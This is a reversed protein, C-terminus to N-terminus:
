NQKEENRNRRRKKSEEWLSELTEQSATKITINRESAIKEVEKFRNLFKINGDTAVVEPDVEMHRCLQAMSFYVDGLEDCIAKKNKGPGKKWEEKTEEVESLFKDFVPEITPWDFNIRSSIKGIELSQRSAPFIKEAKKFVHDKSATNEKEKIEQWKKKIQHIEKQKKDENTGFVHPHRRTMKSNLVEMVDTIDFEGKESALQANLFVQLLVDGLEDCIKKPDGEEMAESAEYAEEIMYRRLTKHTQKLDWPCGDKPDRLTKITKFLKLTSSKLKELNVQSKEIM